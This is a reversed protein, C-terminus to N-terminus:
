KKAYIITILAPLFLLTILVSSFLGFIISVALSSFMPDNKIWLPLMGAITTLCTLLVPKIRSIASNLIENKTYNKIESMLIVGNNICIGVLCIFGLLTMFGFYSKTIFLGTIGGTISLMACILIILPKKISNFYFTLILLIIGLTLPINEFVSKNGKKSKEIEGGIEYNLNKIKNLEPIIEKIVKNATTSNNIWAQLTMVYNNNRRLIKAYEYDTKFNAIQNVPIIKDITKSYITLNDLDEKKTLFNKPKLIVPIKIDGRYYKSIIKGETNTYIYDLLYKSNLGLYEILGENIKVEIEPVMNGWDNQVLYVGKIQKLIESVMNALNSLEKKDKNIVRIEVPADIPPGQPIKRVVTKIDPLTENIFNKIDEMNKDLTKFDKINVLFMAFNTREAEPSASLVYRPASLGTFSLFNLIDKNELLYKEIKEVYEKTQNFSANNNLNLRIEYSLRDSDPFFIKPVFNFVFISILFTIIGASLIIEPKKASFIIKNKFFDIFGTQNKLKEDKLFVNILYPLLATSYFYSFMLVIFIVKFLNSAYEGIASKALFVPLFAMTTIISTILLPIQFKNVTNIIHNKFNEINSEKDNLCGEIIVISNDVLIGLSIILASLSIKDLGINFVDMIFFTSLVTIFIIFGVIIGSKIGLILYVILIVSIISEFLSSSFKATLKKVYDSQLLIIEINIGDYKEKLEKTKEKIEDGWVLINGDKKLSIGILLAEKGNSKILKTQPTKITKKINFINKIQLTSNFTKIFYNKIENENKIQFEPSIKINNKEGSIEGGGFFTNFNEFKNMIEDPTLKLNNIYSEDFEVYLVEEQAGFIEVKGTQNLKRYEDKINKAKDYLKEYDLNKNEIAILAGFVDGYEDNVVPSLGQIIDNESLKVKRRLKDWVPQIEKYYEFLDAYIISKSNTSEMRLDEIEEMNLLRNEIQRTVYKDTRSANLRKTDTIISATRIKFGPDENRKLNIYSTIGNIIFIFVLVILFINNKLFFNAPGNM